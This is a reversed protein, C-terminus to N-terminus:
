CYNFCGTVSLPSASALSSARGREAGELGLQTGWALDLVYVCLVLGTVRVGLFISVARVPHTAIIMIANELLTSLWPLLM